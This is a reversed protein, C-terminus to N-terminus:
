GPRDEGETCLPAAGTAAGRGRTVEELRGAELRLQLDAAAAVEPDHTSFLILSGGTVRERLLQILTYVTDQDLSADPEDLLLLRGPHLLVRGLALRQQQGRSLKRVPRAGVDLLALRQLMQRARSLAEPLVCGGLLASSAVSQEARWEPLLGLSQEMFGLRTLRLRTRAPESLGLLEQGGLQCVSSDSLSTFPLFGALGQLLTSKGAGSPGLVAVLAPAEIKLAEVRVVARGERVLMVRQILLMPPHISPEASM